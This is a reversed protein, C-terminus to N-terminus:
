VVKLPVTNPQRTVALLREYTRGRNNMMRPSTACLEPIPLFVMKNKCLGVSFGATSKFFPLQYTTLFIYM